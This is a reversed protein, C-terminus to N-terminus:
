GLSRLSGARSRAPPVGEGGDGYGLVAAIRRRRVDETDGDLSAPGALAQLAADSAERRPGMAQLLGAMARGGAAGTAAGGLASESASRHLVPPAGAAQPRRPKRRLESSAGSLLARLMVPLYPGATPALGAFAEAGDAKEEDLAARATFFAQETVAILANLAAVLCVLVYATLWADTLWAWAPAGVPRAHEYTELLADGNVVAFLMVGTALPSAFRPTFPLAGVAFCAFAVVIPLVGALLRLAGPGSATVTRVVVAAPSWVSLPGLGALCLLGSGAALAFRPWEGEAPLGPRTAALVAASYALMLGAGVCGTVRWVGVLRTARCCTLADSLARAARLLLAGETVDEGVAEEPWPAWAPGEGLPASSVRDSTLGEPPAQLLAEASAALGGGMMVGDGGM